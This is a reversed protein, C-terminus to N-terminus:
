LALLLIFRVNLVDGTLPETTVELLCFSCVVSLTAGRRKCLSSM